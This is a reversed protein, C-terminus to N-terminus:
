IIVKVGSGSGDAAVSARADPSLCYYGLLFALQVVTLFALLVLLLAKVGLHATSKQAM